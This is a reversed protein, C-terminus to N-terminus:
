VGLGGDNVPAVPRAETNEGGTEVVRGGMVAQALEFAERQEQSTTKRGLKPSVIASRGQSFKKIYTTLDLVYLWMPKNRMKMARLSNIKKHAETEARKLSLRMPLIEDEDDDELGPVIVLGTWNHTTNIPPGSGWEIEGSNARERFMEEADPHESFPTGVFDDGLAEGWSEPILDSFAVIYKEKSKDGKFATMSRGKEYAALIFGVKNGLSEGTLSNIFDGVEADGEGVEFTQPQGVKLLPVQFDADDFNAAQKALLAQLAAEEAPTLASTQTTELDTSPM